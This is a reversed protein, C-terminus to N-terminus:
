RHKSEQDHNSDEHIFLGILNQVPEISLVTPKKKLKFCAMNDLQLRVIRKTSVVKDENYMRMLYVGESELSFSYDQSNVSENLVLIGNMDYVEIRSIANPSTLRFQEYGPNPFVSVESAASSNNLSGNKSSTFFDTSTELKPPSIRVVSMGIKGFSTSGMSYIQDNKEIIINIGATQALTDDWVIEWNDPNIQCYYRYNSRIGNEMVGIAGSAIIGHNETATIHQFSYSLTDYGQFIKPVLLITDVTHDKLDYSLIHSRWAEFDDLEETYGSVNVFANNDATGIFNGYWWVNPDYHGKYPIIDVQHSNEEIFVFGQSNLFVWLGDYKVLRKQFIFSYITDFVVTPQLFEGNDYDIYTLAGTRFPENDSDHTVIIGSDEFMLHVTTHISSVDHSGDIYPSEWILNGDLDLKMLKNFDYSDEDALHVYILSDPGIEIRSFFYDLPLGNHDQPYYKTWLINGLSDLKILIPNESYRGCVYVDGVHDVSIDRVQIYSEERFIETVQQAVLFTTSFILGLTFFVKTIM